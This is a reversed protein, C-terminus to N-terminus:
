WRAVPRSAAPRGAAWESPQRGIVSYALRDPAHADRGWEDSTRDGGRQHHSGEQQDADGGIRQQRHCRERADVEGGDLDVGLQGAAAGLDHRGRHRLRELRLKACIAPTVWIVETLTSPWAEIVRCNSRLRLMSPAAGSTCAAILLEDPCSGLFAASGAWSRCPSDPPCGSGSGRPATRRAAASRCPRSYRCCGPGASRALDAADACTNM